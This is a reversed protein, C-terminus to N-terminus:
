EARSLTALVQRCLSAPWQGPATPTDGLYGYILRSGYQAYLLRSVPGLAGMGMVALPTRSARLLRVGSLLDDGSNLRFAFKVIDAGWDRAENSRAFMPQWQPTRDFDHASAILCVGQEHAAKVVDASSELKAIEWDLAAAFPLLQGAMERRQPEPIHRLGGENEHRITVLVPKCVPHALIDEVSLSAPLADVRLEVLDCPLDQEDSLRCWTEWDPVSGVVLPHPAPTSTFPSKMQRM